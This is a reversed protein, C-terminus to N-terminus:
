SPAKSSGASMVRFASHFWYQTRSAEVSPSRVPLSPALTVAESRMAYKEFRM